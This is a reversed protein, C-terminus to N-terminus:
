FGAARDAIAPIHSSLRAPGKQAEKNWTVAVIATSDHKVSADVGVYVPLERDSVAPTASPDICAGWAAMDIFANETTVFANQIMRLFQNPRMARRMEHLWSQTQWPAIPETHWAPRFRCTLFQCADIPMEERRAFGCYPRTIVSNLIVNNM